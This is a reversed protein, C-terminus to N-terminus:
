ERKQFLPFYSNYRIFCILIKLIFKDKDNLSETNPYLKYIMSLTTKRIDDLVSYKM